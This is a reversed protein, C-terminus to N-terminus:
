KSIRNQIMMMMHDLNSKPVPKKERGGDKRFGISGQGKGLFVDGFLYGDTPIHTRLLGIGGFITVSLNRDHLKLM